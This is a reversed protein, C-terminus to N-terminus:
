KLPLNPGDGCIRTEAYAMLAGIFLGDLLAWFPSSLGMWSVFSSQLIFAIAPYALLVYMLMFAGGVMPGRVYWPMRFDLAPHRDFQGMFGIMVGMLMFMLTTGLGFYSLVPFGFGPLVALCFLGIFLGILKGIVIRGAVSQLEFNM